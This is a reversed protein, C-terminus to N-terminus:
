GRPSSVLTAVRMFVVRTESKKLVDEVGKNM